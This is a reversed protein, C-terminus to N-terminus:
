WNEGYIASYNYGDETEELLKLINRIAKQRIEFCKGKDADNDKMYDYGSWYDKIEARIKNELTLTDVRKIDQTIYEIADDWGREELTFIFNSEIVSYFSHENYEILNSIIDQETEEEMGYICEQFLIRKEEDDLKHWENLCNRLFSEGNRLSQKYITKLM